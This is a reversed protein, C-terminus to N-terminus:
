EARLPLPTITASTIIVCQDSNAVINQAPKILEVSQVGEQNLASIISSRTLDRGILSIRDRVKSLATGIDAMVLGADPGPYLIVNAVIEIRIVNVPAVSVVDTLPKINKRNLRNVVNLIQQTTPTPDSGSNMVSIKIGGNENIKVASADRITVDATLAQYIYAGESGATNYAEPALQTRRRLSEDSEGTLREVGQNAAMQDLDSGTSFALM